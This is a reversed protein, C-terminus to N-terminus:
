NIYTQLLTPTPVKSDKNQKLDYLHQIETEKISFAYQM